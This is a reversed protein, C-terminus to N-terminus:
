AALLVAQGGVPQRVDVLAAHGDAPQGLDLVVAHGDVPRGLDAPASAPAVRAHRLVPAELQTAVSAALEVLTLGLAATVAALVQSSAEKRGREIESLYQPSLGARACVDTLRLGRDLRAERLVHGIARRWSSGRHRPVLNSPEM